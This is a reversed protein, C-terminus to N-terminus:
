KVKYTLHNLVNDDQSNVAFMKVVKRERGLLHQIWGKYPTADNIEENSDEM